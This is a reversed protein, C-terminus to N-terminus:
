GVIIKELLRQRILARGDDVVKLEASDGDIYISIKIIDANAHKVINNLSEQLVRYLVLQEKEELGDEDGQLKYEIDIKYRKKYLSILSEISEYFEKDRFNLPHLQYIMLRMETQVEQVMDQLQEIMNIARKQDSEMIAPLTNLNLSIGFLNQSVSDHLERAIRNREEVVALKKNEKELKIKQELDTYYLQIMVTVVGVGLSIYLVYLM